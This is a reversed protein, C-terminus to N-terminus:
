HTGVGGADDARELRLVLVLVVAVAALLALSLLLQLPRPMALPETRIWLVLVATGALAVIVVPLLPRLVDRM